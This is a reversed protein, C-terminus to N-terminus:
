NKRLIVIHENTMTTVTKGSENTPSNRSPMVKNPINRGITYVHELGCTKGIESLIISTLLKENKVTRDGVVWFLYCNKKCKKALSNICEELDKYFSYVDGARELNSPDELIKDLSRKLTDSKVENDFGKKFKTGGMLNKDINTIEKDELNELNAWQLSVRSFEGYAVTTRSDGYPPSTVILDISNDPVSQLTTANENLLVIETKVQNKSSSDCFSKMKEINRSLIKLYEAKVDPSFKLVKEAQMRYMKFEGNRRNSVLRTTESFAIFYFEKLNRDEIKEIENKIIQLELIVKPLFWFGINKFKPIELEINYKNLFSNLIVPANVGWGNKNSTGETVDIKNEIVYNDIENLICGYYLYQNEISRILENRTLELDLYDLFNTKVRTILHALPNLDNGYVMNMESLIGEVLVTGSGMFPDLLVKPTQYKKILKIIQRSIPYIMVAPYTHIGHTMEKTDENKFDWFDIPLKEFERILENDVNPLEIKKEKEM